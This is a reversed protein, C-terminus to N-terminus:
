ALARALWMRAYAWEADVTRASVGLVEATEPVTLGGFLRAEAVEAARPDAAQLRELAQDLALLDTTAPLEGAVAEDLTVHAVGGGRKEAGHGRAHEVLVRRMVRAAIALFHGRDHVSPADGALRLWAEHALATPQLTHDARERAMARGALRRLEDYVLPALAEAAGAEGAALKAVLQTVDALAVEGGPLTARAM